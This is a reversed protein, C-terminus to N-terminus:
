GEWAEMAELYDSFSAFDSSKPPHTIKTTRKFGKGNSGQTNSLNKQRRCTSLLLWLLGEFDPATRVLQQSLDVM